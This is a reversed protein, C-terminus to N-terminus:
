KGKQALMNSVEGSRAYRVQFTLALTMVNRDENPLQADSAHWLRLAGQGPVTFRAGDLIAMLRARVAWVRTFSTGYDWVELTYSAPRTARDVGDLTDLRHVLFPWLTDVPVKLLPGAYEAGMLANLETDSRLADWLRTIVAQTVDM